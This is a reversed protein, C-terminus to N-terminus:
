RTSTRRTVAAPEVRRGSVSITSSGIVIWSSPVTTLVVMRVGPWSKSSATPNQKM